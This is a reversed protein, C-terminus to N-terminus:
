TKITMIAPNIVGEHPKDDWQKNWKTKFEDGKSHCRVVMQAVCGAMFVTIGGAKINDDAQTIILYPDFDEQNDLLRMVERAVDVCCKDYPDSNVDEWKKWSVEDIVPM